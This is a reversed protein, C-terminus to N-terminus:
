NKDTQIEYQTPSKGNTKWQVSGSCQTFYRNGGDWFRYVKCGDVEFLLEVQFSSNNTVAVEKAERKCSTGLFLGLILMLFIKQM